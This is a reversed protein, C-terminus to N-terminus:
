IKKGKSVYAFSKQKTDTVKLLINGTAQCWAVLDPKAGPDTFIVELVENKQLEAMKEETMLIPVPCLQGSCDISGTISFRENDM